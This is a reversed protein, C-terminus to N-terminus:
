TVARKSRARPTSKRPPTAAAQLAPDNLLEPHKELLRLLNMIGPMPAAEGREYRSFANHGGGTLAAAQQQTLGLKERIRRVEAGQKHRANMVMADGAAAYRQASAADFVIEGCAGCRWGSLNKVGRTAKAHKLTFTKNKFVRTSNDAGCAGCKNTM